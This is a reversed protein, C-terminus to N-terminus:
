CVRSRSTEACPKRHDCDVSRRRSRERQFWTQASTWTQLSDSGFNPPGVGFGLLSIWPPRWVDSFPFPVLAKVM